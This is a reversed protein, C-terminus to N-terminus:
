KEVSGAKPLWECALDALGGGGGRWWWAVVQRNAYRILCLARVLSAFYPCVRM